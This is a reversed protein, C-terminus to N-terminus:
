FVNQIVASLIMTDENFHQTMEFPSIIMTFLCM